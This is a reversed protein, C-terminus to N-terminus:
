SIPAAGGFILAEIANVESQAWIEVAAKVQAETDGVFEKEKLKRGCAIISANVSIKGDSNSRYRGPYYRSEFEVIPFDYDKKGQCDDMWEAYIKM